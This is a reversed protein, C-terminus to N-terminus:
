LVRTSCLLQILTNRWGAKIFGYIGPMEVPCMYSMQGLAEGPLQRIVSEELQLRITVSLFYGVTQRSDDHGIRAYHTEIAASDLM